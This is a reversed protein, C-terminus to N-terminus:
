PADSKPSATPITREETVAYRTSAPDIFYDEDLGSHRWEESRRAALLSEVDDFWLEAVGDYDAARVDGPVVITKSHVLRRLGPIRAGIPGHVDRWYRDFDEDSLGARKRFSYILKIM